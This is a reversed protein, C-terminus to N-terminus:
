KGFLEKRQQNLLEEYKKIALEKKDVDDQLKRIIEDKRMFSKKIKQELSEIEQKHREEIEQKEKVYLSKNDEMKKQLNKVENEAQILTEKVENELNKKESNFEKTLGSLKSVADNYNQQLNKFNNEQMEYDLEKTKLKKTMIEINQELNIRNKSEAQLKNTIENIKNKLGNNEEILALNKENAKKEIEVINKKRENLSEEGLKEIIINIQKDRDKLLDSKMQKYKKELDSEKEKLIEENKEELAKKTDFIELKLKNEYEAKIDDYKKQYFNENSFINKKNREELKVIQDEYIKKDKERLSELRQIESNLKANWRRREETIEDELRESQNRLKMAALNRETEIGEDRERIYKKKLEDFKIEYEEVLKEKLNKMELLYKEEMASMENKHNSIIKEVEPELGKATLEKIEKIKNEEWKKRRIKEAQFWAEKNKRTDSEYNERMKQLKKYNIKEAESLKSQLESLQMEMNRKESILSEMLTNQRQLLLDNENKQSLLAKNLFDDKSKLQLKLDDIVSTMAEITKKAEKLELNLGINETNELSLLKKEKSEKPLPIKEIPITPIEEKKSPELIKEQNEVTSDLFNSLRQFIETKTTIKKEEKKESKPENIVNENDLNNNEKNNNKINNNIQNNINNINNNNNDIKNTEDEKKEKSEIIEEKQNHEDVNDKDNNKENNEEIKEEKIENISNKINTNDIIINEEKASIKNDNLNLNEIQSKQINKIMDFQNDILNDNKEILDDDLGFKNNEFNNNINNIGENSQEKNQMKKYIKEFVSYKNEENNINNNFLAGKDSNIDDIDINMMRKNIIDKNNSITNEEYNDVIIDENLKKKPKKDSNNKQILNMIIQDDNNYNDLLNKKRQNILKMLNSNTNHIKELYNRFCKQILIVAEDINNFRKPKINMNKKNQEYIYEEFRQKINKNNNNNNNHIINSKKNKNYDIKKDTIEQNKRKRVSDQPVKNLKNYSTIKKNNKAGINNQSPNNQNKLKKEKSVRKILKPKDNPAKRRPEM